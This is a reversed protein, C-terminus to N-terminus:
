VCVLMCLFCKWAEMIRTLVGEGTRGTCLLKESIVPSRNVDVRSGRNVTVEACRVDSGVLM